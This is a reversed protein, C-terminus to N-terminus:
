CMLIPKLMSAVHESLVWWEFQNEIELFGLANKKVRTVAEFRIPASIIFKVSALRIPSESHAESYACWPLLSKLAINYINNTDTIRNWM